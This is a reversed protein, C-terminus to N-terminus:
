RSWNRGARGLVLLSLFFYTCMFGMLFRSGVLLDQRGWEGSARDGTLHKTDCVDRKPCGKFVRDSLARMRSTRWVYGLRRIHILSSELTSTCACPACVFSVIFVVLCHSKTTNLGDCRSVLIGRIASLFSLVCVKRKAMVEEDSIEDSICTWSTSLLRTLHVPQRFMIARILINYWLVSWLIFM